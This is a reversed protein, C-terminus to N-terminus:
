KRWYIYILKSNYKIVFSNYIDKYIYLECKRGYFVGWGLNSSKLEKNKVNNIKCILYSFEHPCINHAMVHFKKAKKFLFVFHVSSLLQYIDSAMEKWTCTYGIRILTENVHLGESQWSLFGKFRQSGRTWKMSLGNRIQSTFDTLVDWHVSDFLYSFLVYM